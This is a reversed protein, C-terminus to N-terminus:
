PAVRTPLAASVVFGGARGRGAELQGGLVGARERMGVIGHGSGSSAPTVPSLAPPFGGTGDDAIVLSLVDDRVQATVAARTAGSHRIVNTLSEQVIRYAAAEIAGDLCGGAVAVDLDVMVGAKRAADALEGLGSIGVAGREATAAPSRLLKVTARLERLQTSTAEAIRAVARRAADDDRGIAEAAVNGHLAIVSMAHGVSDHLDQAIRVREAELRRQADRTQEAAALLRLKNESERAERRVRVSVGLAIAAAILAGNTLLDDSLLYTTPQAGQVVQAVAAVMVLLGGAGVAWALAGADAARYLAAVAPLAIGVAPLDLTYYAFISLVTLVLAWRPARRALLVLAGFGIAFGFAVATEPGFGPEAAAVVLAVTLAQATALLADTLRQDVRGGQSVAAPEGISPM